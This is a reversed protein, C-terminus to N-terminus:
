LSLHRKKNKQGRWLSRVCQTLSLISCQILKSLPNYELILGTNVIPLGHPRAQFNIRAKNTTSIFNVEHFCSYRTYPDSISGGDFINIYEIYANNSGDEEDCMNSDAKRRMFISNVFKIQIFQGAPFQILWNMTTGGPFQNPFGLSTLMGSVACLCKSCFDTRLNVLCCDGGDYLCQPNNTEDNCYLDGILAPNPCCDLDDYNCGAINLEDNCVGDGLFPHLLTACFGELLCECETCLDKNIPHLCCDGGDYNCVENNSEDNCFGDGILHINECGPVPVSYFLQFYVM